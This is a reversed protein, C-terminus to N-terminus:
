RQSGTFRQYINDEDKFNAFCDPEEKFMSSTLFNSKQPIKSAEKHITMSYGIEHHMGVDRCRAIVPWLSKKREQVCLDNVMKPGRAMGRTEGFSSWKRINTAFCSSPLWNFYCFKSILSHHEAVSKAEAAVADSIRTGKSDFYKSEGAIAWVDDHLFNDHIIMARFWDLADAEYIVDDESFIVWQHAEFGYDIAVKATGATGRGITEPMFRISSFATSNAKIWQEVVNRTEAHEASYKGAFRSGDLGDQTIILDFDRAGNAAALSALTKVSTDAKNFVQVCIAADTM